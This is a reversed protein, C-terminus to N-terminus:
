SNKFKLTTQISDITHQTKKRTKKQTKIIKKQIKQTHKANKKLEDQTWCM